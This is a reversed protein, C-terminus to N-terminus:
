KHSTKIKNLIPKYFDANEVLEKQFSTDQRKLGERNEAQEIDFLIM